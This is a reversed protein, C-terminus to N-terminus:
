IIIRLTKASFSHTMNFNSRMDIILFNRMVALLWCGVALLWCGVALLWCYFKNVQKTPNTAKVLGNLVGSLVVVNCFANKTAINIQGSL